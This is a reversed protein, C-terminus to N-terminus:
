TALLADIQQVRLAAGIEAFRKKAERLARERGSDDGQLRALEARDLLVLPALSRAGVADILRDAADLAACVAPAAAAGEQAFLVHVLTRQAQILDAPVGLRLGLAVAEDALARARALDGEGLCAEALWSVLRVELELGTRRERAIALAQELTEIAEPWRAAVTLAVGLRHNSVTRSYPSGMKEAIELGRQCPGLAAEADGTVVALESLWSLAWGESETDGHQRSLEIGREIDAKAGALEGTYIQIVGRMFHGWSFASLSWLEFGWEPHGRTADILQQVLERARSFLSACVHPYVATWPALARLEEDSTERLLREGDIAHRLGEEIRGCTNAVISYATELLADAKVDGSKGTWRKGESFALTEEEQSMGMRFGLALAQRCAEAGLKAAEPADAHAAILDRVRQWHRLAAAIDSTGAWDAARRHWGAAILGQDAEEWHHALLAAQEDLKDAHAAEVALAVAEHVRRRRERLQSGLAVEQTLPHKFAYEAVPYLSEEYIFEAGKLARLADDLEPKPLDTVAALLPLQFEKGIVAATQLVQKEREPLRDIRAALIPQVRTPVQLREIPTVLRYRGRTGELHESEVLSRVVEETFFPNGATRAHISDALGATSPDSGLLDLLLERIAEPGLPALPLQHYWSKQMWDARYEPRFNVLLLHSTGGIADVWQELWDESAGDIWHLDEIMFLISGRTTDRQSLRRLVGFLQRQRAEPDM